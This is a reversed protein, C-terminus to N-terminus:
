RYFVRPDFNLASIDIGADVCVQKIVGLLRLAAGKAHPDDVITMRSDSWAASALEFRRSDLVIKTQVPAMPVCENALRAAIRRAITPSLPRRIVRIQKICEELSLAGRQRLRALQVTIPERDPLTVMGSAGDATKVITISFEFADEFGPSRVSFCETDADITEHTSIGMLADFAEARHEVAWDMAAKQQADEARATAANAAFLLASVIRIANAIAIVKSTM